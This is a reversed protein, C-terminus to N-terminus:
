FRMRLGCGAQFNRVDQSTEVSITVAQWITVAPIGFLDWGTKRLGYSIATHALLTGGFYLNVVDKSPHKGMLPNTEYNEYRGRNERFSQTQMWDITHAATYLVQSGTDYYTWESEAALGQTAVGFVLTMVVIFIKM